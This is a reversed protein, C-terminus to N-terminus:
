YMHDLTTPIPDGDGGLYDNVLLLSGPIMARLAQMFITPLSHAGSLVPDVFVVVGYLGYALFNIVM